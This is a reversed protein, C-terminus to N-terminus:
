EDYYTDPRKLFLGLAKSAVVLVVCSVFGFWAGFGYTGDIGFHAYHTVFLDAFVTLALVATFVWWLIRISGERVLWHVPEQASTVNSGASTDSQTNTEM